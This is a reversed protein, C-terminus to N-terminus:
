DNGRSSGNFLYTEREIELIFLAPHSLYPYILRSERQIKLSIIDQIQPKRGSGVGNVFNYRLPLLFKAFEISYRYELPLPASSFQLNVRFIKGQEGLTELSLSSKFLNHM